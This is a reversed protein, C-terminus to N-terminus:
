PVASAPRVRTVKAGAAPLTTSHLRSSDRASTTHRSITSRGSVPACASSSPSNPLFAPLFPPGPPLAAPPARPGSAGGSGGRAEPTASRGAQESSARRGTEPANTARHSIPGSRESLLATHREGPFPGSSPTKTYCQRLQQQRLVQFQGLAKDPVTCSNGGFCSGWRQLSGHSAPGPETPIPRHGGFGAATGSGPHVQNVRGQNRGAGAERRGNARGARHHKGPAQEPGAARSPAAPTRLGLILTGKGNIEAAQIWGDM